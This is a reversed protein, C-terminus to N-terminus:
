FGMGRLDARRHPVEEAPDDSALPLRIPADTVCGYEAGVNYFRVVVVDQSM